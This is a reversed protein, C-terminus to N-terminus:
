AIVEWIILVVLCFIVVTLVVTLRNTISALLQGIQDIDSM